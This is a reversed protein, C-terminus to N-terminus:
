FKRELLYYKSSVRRFGMRTWLKHAKENGEIVELQIKSPHFTDLVRCCDQMALTALSEGRAEPVIYFAYFFGTKRPLFRHDEIGFIVFGLRKGDRVVWDCFINPKFMGDFFFQRFDEDPEFGPIAERFYTTAMKTFAERDEKAVPVLTPRQM